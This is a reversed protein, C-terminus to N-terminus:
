VEDGEIDLGRKWRMHGGSRGRMVAVVEAVISLGIEAPSEAGIDLGIPAYLYETLHGLGEAKLREVVTLVRRRSGIMGLYGLTEDKLEKLVELDHLHGRTIVIVATDEDKQIANIGQAFSDCVVRHARPFRKPNAYAPRDDLVTVEFGVEAAITHTPVAIHGGGVIVFKPAPRILEFAVRVDQRHSLTVVTIRGQQSGSRNSGSPIMQGAIELFASALDLPVNSVRVHLNGNQVTYLAKAGVEIPDKSAIVTALIVTDRDRLAQKIKAYIEQNHIARRDM